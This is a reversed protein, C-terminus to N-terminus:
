GKILLFQGWFSPNKFYINVYKSQESKYVWGYPHAYPNKLGSILFKPSKKTFFLYKKRLNDSVVILIPRSAKKASQAGLRGISPCDFIGLLLKLLFEQTM